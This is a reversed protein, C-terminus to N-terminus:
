KTSVTNLERACQYVSSRACAHTPLAARVSCAGDCELSASPLSKTELTLTTAQPMFVVAESERATTM